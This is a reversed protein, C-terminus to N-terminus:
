DPSDSSDCDSDNLLADHAVAHLLPRGEMIVGIQDFAVPTFNNCDVGVDMQKGVGPLTGHSHGYLQWAGYHAREWTRMAYHCCVVFQGDITKRWMTKHNAPLWGDHSGRVFIHNGNLRRIFMDASLYRSFWGFDGIHVTVDQPTVVRNHNAILTENMEEISAFPRNCYGIIRAHDYHEDAVFYYM